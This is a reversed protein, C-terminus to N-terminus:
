HSNTPRLRLFRGAQVSSRPNITTDRGPPQRLITCKKVLPCQKPWSAKAEARALIETFAEIFGSEMMKKDRAEDIPKVKDCISEYTLENSRTLGLAKDVSDFHTVDCGSIDVM